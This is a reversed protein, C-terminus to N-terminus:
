TWLPENMRSFLLLWAIILNVDDEAASLELKLVSLSANGYKMLWENFSASDVTAPKVHKQSAHMTRFKSAALFLHKSPAREHAEGYTSIYLDITFRM